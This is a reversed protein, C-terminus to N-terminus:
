RAHAARDRRIHASPSGRRPRRALGCIWPGHPGDERPTQRVTVLLKGPTFLWWHMPCAMTALWSFTGPQGMDEIVDIAGLAMPDNAAFVAQIDPHATLAARMLAAGAERSWDGGGEFVIQMGSYERYLKHM